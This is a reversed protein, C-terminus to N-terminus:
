MGALSTAAIRIRYLLQSRVSKLRRTVTDFRAGSQLVAHPALFFLHRSLEGHVLEFEM